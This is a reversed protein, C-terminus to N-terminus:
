KLVWDLMEVQVQKITEFVSVNKVGFAQPDKKVAEKTAILMEKFNEIQEKTKM